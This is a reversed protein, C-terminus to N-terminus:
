QQKDLALADGAFARRTRKVLTHGTQGARQAARAELVCLAGGGNGIRAGGLDGPHLHEALSQRRNQRLHRAIAINEVNANRGRLARSQEDVLDAEDLHIAVPPGIAKELIRAVAPHRKAFRLM